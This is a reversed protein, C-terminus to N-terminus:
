RHERRYDAVFITIKTVQAPTRWAKPMGGTV